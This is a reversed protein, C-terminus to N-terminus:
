ARCTRSTSLAASAASRRSRTSSARCSTTSATWPRCARRLPPDSSPFWAPGSPGRILPPMAHMARRQPGNRFRARVEEPEVLMLGYMGNAIHSALPEAACHYFFLGPYLLKFYASRTQGEEVFLAPAGGGPGTVAHFDINHAMGSADHNTYTINLVDGVRARIFPGPTHGNFTWFEYKQTSSLPQKEVTTNMDVQVIAPHRRKLPPPVAPAFTLTAPLVPLGSESAPTRPVAHPANGRAAHPTKTAAATAVATAGVAAAAAMAAWHSRPTTQATAATSALRRPAATAAAAATAARRAATRLVFAM